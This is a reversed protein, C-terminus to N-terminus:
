NAVEPEPREFGMDEQMKAFWDQAIGTEDDYAILRVPVKNGETLFLKRLEDENATVGKMYAVYVKAKAQNYTVTTEGSKLKAVDEMFQEGAAEVGEVNSRRPRGSGAFVGGFTMWRFEGTSTVKRSEDNEFKISLSQGSDRVSAAIEEGKAMALEFAKGMKWHKVIAPRAEELTPVYSEKEDTKWFLFLSDGSDGPAIERPDYKALNRQFAIQAFPIRVPSNTRRDLEIDFAKGLEHDFTEQFSISALVGNNVGLRTAMEALDPKKPMETETAEAYTLDQFYKEIEDKATTISDRVADSAKPRALVLSIDDKVEDFPKYEAAPEKTEAAAVEETKEEATEEAPDDDSLLKDVDEDSTTDGEDVSLKRFAEKNEDYYGRLEEDSLKGIERELIAPFDAKLWDFTLRTPERFGPDPSVVNPLVSKYEDYLAAIETESPEESVQPLFEEVDIETVEAEMRRYLRKFYEMSQAPTVASDMLGGAYAGGNALVRVRHAAMEVKMGDILNQQSLRGNTAQKLLAALENRTVTGDALQGELHQIVADDSVVIGMKAAQEALMVSEIVNAENATEQVVMLRPTGGRSQATGRVLQQFNVLLQRRGIHNQLEIASIEGGSWSAATPNDAGGGGTRGATSDQWQQLAPLIGFALMAGVAAVALMAKQYKRFAALPNSM